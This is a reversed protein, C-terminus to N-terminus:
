SKKGRLLLHLLLLLMAFNHIQYFYITKNVQEKNEKKMRKVAYKTHKDMEKAIEKEYAADVLPTVEPDIDSLEHYRFLGGQGSGRIARRGGRGKRNTMHNPYPNKLVDFWTM